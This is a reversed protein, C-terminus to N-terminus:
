RILNLTEKAGVGCIHCCNKDCQKDLQVGRGWYPSDGRLHLKAGWCLQEGVSCRLPYTRTAGPEILYVQSSNPWREGYTTSKVAFEITENTKNTVSYTLSPGAIQEVSCSANEYNGFLVGNRCQRLESV